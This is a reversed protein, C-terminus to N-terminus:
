FMWFIKMFSRFLSLTEHIIMFLFLNECIIMFLCLHEHIIMFLFLKEHTIMFLVLNKHIIMFLFLNLCIFYTRLFLKKSFTSLPYLNTTHTFSAMLAMEFRSIKNKVFHDWVSLFVQLCFYDLLASVFFLSVFCFCAFLFCCLCCNKARAIVKLFHFDNTQMQHKKHKKAAKTNKTRTSDKRLFYFLCIQFPRSPRM